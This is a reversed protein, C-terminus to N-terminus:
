PRRHSRSLRRVPLLVSGHDERSESGLPPLACRHHSRATALIARLRGGIMLAFQQVNWGYWREFCDDGMLEILLEPVLHTVAYVLEPSGQCGLRLSSALGRIATRCADAEIALLLRLDQMHGQDLWYAALEDAEGPRLDGPRLADGRLLAVAVRALPHEEAPLASRGIDRASELWSGASHPQIWALAALAEMRFEANASDAYEAIVAVFATPDPSASLANLLLCVARDERPPCDRLLRHIEAAVEIGEDEGDRAGIRRQDWERWAWDNIGAAIAWEMDPGLEPNWLRTLLAKACVADVAANALALLMERSLPHTGDPRDFRIPWSLLAEVAAPGGIHGIARGAEQRVIDRPHERLVKTLAPLATGGEWWGLAEAANDAIFPCDDELMKAVWDPFAALDLDACALVAAEKLRTPLTQWVESYGTNTTIVSELAVLAESPTTTSNDGFADVAEPLWLEGLRLLARWLWADELSGEHSIRVQDLLLPVVLRSPISQLLNGSLLMERLRMEHQEHALEEVVRDPDYCRSQAAWAYYVAGALGDTERLRAIARRLPRVWAKRPFRHAIWLAREPADDSCLGRYISVWHDSSASGRWALAAAAEVQAALDGAAAAEHSRAQLWSLAEPENRVFSGVVRVAEGHDAFGPHSRIADVVALVEQTTLANRHVLKQLLDHAIHKREADPSMCAYVFATLITSRAEGESAILQNQLASAPRRRAWLGTAQPAYGSLLGLGLVAGEVEGTEHRRFQRPLDQSAERVAEVLNQWYEPQGGVVHMVCKILYPAVDTEEAAELYLAAVERHPVRLWNGEAILEGAEELRHITELVRASDPAGQSALLGSVFFRDAPHDWRSFCSTVLMIAPIFPRGAYTRDVDQLGARAATGMLYLRAEALGDSRTFPTKPDGGHGALMWALLWLNGGSEMALQKIMGDALEFPPRQAALERRRGWLHRSLDGTKVVRQSELRWTRVREARQSAHASIAREAGSANDLEDCPRGCLIFDVSPPLFRSLEEIFRVATGHGMSHIDEVILVPRVSEGGEEDHAARVVESVAQLFARMNSLKSDVSSFLEDLRSIYVPRGAGALLFGAHRATTTKGTAPVGEILVIRKDHARDQLHEYVQVTEPRLFVVDAAFDCWYAGDLRFLAPTLRRERNDDAGGDVWLFEDLPRFGHPLQVDLVARVENLAALAYLEHSLQDIRGVLPGLEAHTAATEELIPGVVARFDQQLFVTLDYQYHCADTLGTQLLVALQAQVRAKEAADTAAAQQELLSQLVVLGAALTGAVIGAPLAVGAGVLTAGIGVGTLVSKIAAILDTAGDDATM